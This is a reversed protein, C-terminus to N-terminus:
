EQWHVSTQIGQAAALAMSHQTGSGKSKSPFAIMFNCEKVIDPNRALGAGKGLRKWDPKLILTKVGHRKAWAKGLSDAGKAGGSVVLVPLGHQAVHKKMALDLAEKDTFHRSGVIAVKM